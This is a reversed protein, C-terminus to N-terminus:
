YKRRDRPLGPNLERGRLKRSRPQSDPRVPASRWATPQRGSPLGAGEANIDLRQKVQRSACDGKGHVAFCTTDNCCLMLPRTASYMTAM